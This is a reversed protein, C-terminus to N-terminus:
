FLDSNLTKKFIRSEGGKETIPLNFNFLFFRKIM